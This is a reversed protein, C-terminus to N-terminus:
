LWMIQYCKNIASQKCDPLHYQKLDTYTGRIRQSHQISACLFMASILWLINVMLRFINEYVPKFVNEMTYKRTIKNQSVCYCVKVNTELTPTLANVACEAARYYQVSDMTTVHTKRVFQLQFNFNGNEAM